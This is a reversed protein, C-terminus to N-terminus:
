HDKGTIHPSIDEITDAVLRLYDPAESPEAKNTLVASKFDGEDPNPGTVIQIAMIFMCRSGFVEELVDEIKSRLMRTEDENAM